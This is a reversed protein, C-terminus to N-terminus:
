ALVLNHQRRLGLAPEAHGDRGEGAAHTLALGAFLGKRHDALRDLDVDLREDRVAVWDGPRYLDLSDGDDGRLRRPERGDRRALRDARQLATAPLEISDLTAVMDKPVGIVGMPDDDRHM